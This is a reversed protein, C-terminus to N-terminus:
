AHMSGADFTFLSARASRQRNWRDRPPLERALRALVFRLGGLVILGLLIASGDLITSFSFM